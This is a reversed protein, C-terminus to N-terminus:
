MPSKVLESEVPILLMGMLTLPCLPLCETLAPARENIVEVAIRCTVALSDARRALAVLAERLPGLNQPQVFTCDFRTNRACHPQGFPFDDERPRRTGASAENRGSSSSDREEEGEEM